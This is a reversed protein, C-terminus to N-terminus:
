EKVFADKALLYMSVGAAVAANLSEQTSQMPIRLTRTAVKRVQASVGNAENGIVLAFKEPAVFNFVNEGNMDAVLVDIGNLVSLIEDREAVYLKTFFVGSMSARVSKPSYPDTCDKTLYLEDYGAANATRIIAGMNGPDAVGDLLLCKGKPPQLKETPIRVRCVVGQPTKEDSLFRLVDQSVVVTKSEDFNEGDYTEAVFIKEIKLGSKQCERAMKVGEVLFSGLERRGKKEKLGATEKILPNNKSTLIM